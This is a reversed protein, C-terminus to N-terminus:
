RINNVVYWVSQSNEICIPITPMGNQPFDVNNWVIWLVWISRCGKRFCFCVMGYYFYQIRSSLHESINEGLLVTCAVISNTSTTPNFFALGTRSLKGRVEECINFCRHVRATTRKNQLRYQGADRCSSWAIRSISEKSVSNMRNPSTEQRIRISLDSVVKLFAPHVQLVPVAQILFTCAIVQSRFVM